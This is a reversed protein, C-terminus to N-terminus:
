AVSGNVQGWGMTKGPVLWNYKNPVVKDGHHGGQFPSIILQKMTVKNKLGLM